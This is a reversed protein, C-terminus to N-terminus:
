QEPMGARRLGDYMREHAEVVRPDGDEGGGSVVESPQQGPQYEQQKCEQEGHRALASM